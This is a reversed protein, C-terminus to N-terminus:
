SSSWNPWRVGIIKFPELQKDKPRVLYNSLLWQEVWKDKIHLLIIRGNQKYSLSLYNSLVSIGSRATELSVSIM